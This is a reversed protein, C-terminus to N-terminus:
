EVRNLFWGFIFREDKQRREALTVYYAGQLANLMRHLVEEGHTGRKDLFKKLTAVTTPGVDGDVKIDAYYKQGDNLVNLSRQLFEGARGVGMNVGTDAMEAAIKPSLKEIDTLRLKDWYMRSYIQYALDRPLDVMKGNYGYQRATAITIGYNTERGSDALDNVYGGEVKIVDNIVRQKLESDM